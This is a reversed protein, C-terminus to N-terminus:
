KRKWPTEQTEQINNLHHHRILLRFPDGGGVTATMPRHSCLLSARFSRSSQEDAWLSLELGKLPESGRTCKPKGPPLSPPNDTLSWTFGQTISAAFGRHDTKNDVGGMPSIFVVQKRAKRPFDPYKPLGVEFPNIKIQALDDVFRM